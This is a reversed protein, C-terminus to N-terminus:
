QQKEAVSSEAWLALHKCISCRARTGSEDEGLLGSPNKKELATLNLSVTRTGDEHKEGLCDSWDRLFRIQGTKVWDPKLCIKLHLSTTKKGSVVRFEWVTTCGVPPVAPPTFSYQWIHSGNAEDVSASKSLLYKQRKKYIACDIGSAFHLLSIIAFWLSSIWLILQLFTDPQRLYCGRLFCKNM